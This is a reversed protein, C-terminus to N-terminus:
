VYVKKGKRMIYKGGRPGTHVKPKRTKKSRTEAERSLKKLYKKRRCAEDPLNKLLKKIKDYTNKSAIVILNKGFKLTQKKDNLTFKPLVTTYKPYTVVISKGEVYIYNKNVYIFAYKSNQLKNNYYIKVEKKKAYLTVGKSRFRRDGGFKHTSVEDIEDM